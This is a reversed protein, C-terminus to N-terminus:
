PGRGTVFSSASHRLISPVVLKWFSPPQVGRGVLLHTGCGDIATLGRCQICCTTICVCGGAKEGKGSRFNKAYDADSHLRRRAFTFHVWDTIWYSPVVVDGWNQPVGICTTSGTDAGTTPGTLRTIRTYFSITRRARVPLCNAYRLAYRMCGKDLLDM